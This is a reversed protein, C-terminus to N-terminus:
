YWVLWSFYREWTSSPRRAATWISTFITCFRGWKRWIRRTPSYCCRKSTWLCDTDTESNCCYLLHIFVSISSLSSIILTHQYRLVSEVFVRLAKIHIWAIFAESFNVKLWRVLPGQASWVCVDSVFVSVFLEGDSPCIRVFQKKKDTSLRTMEEKDAKMEEENYQFDRVTFRCLLRSFDLCSFSRTTHRSLTSVSLKSRNEPRTDSIMSPKESSHSQLCVATRIRLCCVSFFFVVVVVSSWQTNPISPNM